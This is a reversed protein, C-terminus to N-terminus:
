AADHFIVGATFREGSRLASVGHRMKVRYTGRTGRVPRDHVAFFVAEGQSLPVVHARSQMRPRQEVLVFEGGTFEVQPESLLFTVQLPFVYEGYLDQHLCNYDGEGYRLLLPTPRTQGAAHCHEIYERHTAPFQADIKMAGNWRNAIPALHPYLSTRLGEVIEPLPYDFYKYEGRGYNQRGMDIRKRFLPEQSYLAVLADCEERSLFGALVASGRADMQGAIDRWDIADVRRAIV